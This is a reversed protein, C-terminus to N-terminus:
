KPLSIPNTTDIYIMANVKCKRPTLTYNRCFLEGYAVDIGKPLVNLSSCGKNVSDTWVIEKNSNYLTVTAEFIDDRVVNRVCVKGAYFKGFNDSDMNGFWYSDKSQADVRLDPVPLINLATPAAFAGFSLVMLIVLMIKKM